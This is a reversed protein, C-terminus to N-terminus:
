ACTEFVATAKIMILKDIEISNLFLKITYLPVILMIIIIIIIIIILLDSSYWISM